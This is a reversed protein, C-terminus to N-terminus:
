VAEKAPACETPAAAEIRELMDPSEFSKSRHPHNNWEVSALGYHFEHVSGTITTGSLRVADGAKILGQTTGRRSM